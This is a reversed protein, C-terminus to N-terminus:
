ESPLTGDDAKEGRLEKELAVLGRELAEAENLFNRARQHLFRVFKMVDQTVMAGAARREELRQMQTKVPKKTM